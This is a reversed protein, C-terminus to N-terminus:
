DTTKDRQSLAVTERITGTIQQRNHCVRTGAGAKVIAREGPRWCALVLRAPHNLRARGSASTPCGAPAALM